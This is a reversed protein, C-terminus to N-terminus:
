AHDFAFRVPMGCFDKATYRLPTVGSGGLGSQTALGSLGEYRLVSKFPASKNHLLGIAESTVAEVPIDFKPTHRMKRM